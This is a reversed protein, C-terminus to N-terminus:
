VGTDSVHQTSNLSSVVDECRKCLEKHHEHSDPDTGPSEEGIVAYQWCRQCKADRPPYVLVFGKSQGDPMTFEDFYSWKQSLYRVRDRWPADTLKNWLDESDNPLFCSDTGLDFVTADSVVLIERLSSQLLSADIGTSIEPFSSRCLLGPAHILVECELSSAMRKDVRAREQASKCATNIAMVLPLYTKELAADYWQSPPATWVKGFVHENGSKISEPSHEWSEQVLLPTFPALMAQLQSLIQFLTVQADLRRELGSGVGDCYLTDKIAEIYFASLDANVWRSIAATAKHFEFNDYAHQVEACVKYLQHLALRDALNQSVRPSDLAHPQYDGLAGLLLKFTVRYKHLAAHVTKVITESVVVDKSWDSNAVWLRLADPGLSGTTHGRKKSPPPTKTPKRKKTPSSDPERKDLLEFEGTIIQEPTIVNGISKSMKKGDADLTFGHTILKKFPAKPTLEPYRSKQAAVSTLLSSQFWGRHQDTGELFISAVQQWEHLDDLPREENVLSWSTGSDFWVDMTDKGRLYQSADLGPEIWAADEAADSWWADTGRESIIAIIHKVSAETLVAEGTDKHYLAPIPVGWSRQRSICWESRSQVFSRLRSQGSVPRFDVSDLAKLAHEKIATLDAFWQATARVLIPQKTRWDYPYKHKYDHVALISGANQLATIVAANGEGFVSKGCLLEPHKLSAEATFKGEGDVPAKVQVLGSLIHPQLAEYDEMGHGPACHVLGTGADASVFSANIIPRQTDCFSQLGSYSSQLLDDVDVSTESISLEHGLMTEVAQVRSRALLLKGHEVSHATVYDLARNIAIAQNAPLTWPTTTWILLSVPGDECRSNTRSLPFKVLAAKSIHDDKYELEAEALASRSSPSWYVPKNRRYILGSRVMDLFVNLQRLEFSKDMTKWHQEWAGMVAWSRFGAMQKQVADNAFSAAAKRVKVADPKNEVSWGHHEFAKQEIPLGHCDWGPIYSIRRGQLLQTRNIIDKLIKNLAHGVHLDGNAYPPGDHILFPRLEARNRSQWEYLDDTSRKLYKQLDAHTARAPFTSRPLRLTSSWSKVAEKASQTM